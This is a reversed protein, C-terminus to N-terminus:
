SSRYRRDVDLWNDINLMDEVLGFFFFLIVIMGSCKLPIANVNFIFSRTEEDEDGTAPIIM